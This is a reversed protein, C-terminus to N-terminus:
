ESIYKNGSCKIHYKLRMYDTCPKLPNGTIPHMGSQNFFTVTDQHKHYWICPQNKKKTPMKSTLEFQRLDKQSDIAIIDSDFGTTTIPTSCDMLEFHDNQWQMCDKKTIYFISISAIGIIASALFVGKWNSQIINSKQKIAIGEIVTNGKNSPPLDANRQVRKPESEVAVSSKRNKLFNSFPRPEFNVLVAALELRTHSHFDRGELLSIVSKLKGTSFQEIARRLNIDPSAEFFARFISEDKRTLENDFQMLCFNRLQAPSMYHGISLADTKKVEEFRKLIATRYDEEQITPM